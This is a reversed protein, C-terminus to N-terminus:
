NRAKKAVRKEEEETVLPEERPRKRTEDDESTIEGEEAPSKIRDDDPIPQSAPEEEEKVFLKDIFEKTVKTFAVVHPAYEMSLDLAESPTVRLDTESYHINDIADELAQSVETLKKIMEGQHEMFISRIASM